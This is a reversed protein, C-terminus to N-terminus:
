GIINNKGNKPPTHPPRRAEKLTKNANTNTRKRTGSTGKINTRKYLM